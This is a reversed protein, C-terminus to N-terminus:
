RIFNKAKGYCGERKIEQIKIQEDAVTLTKNRQNKVRM